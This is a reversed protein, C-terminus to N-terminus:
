ITKTLRFCICWLYEESKRLKCVLRVESEMANMGNPGSVTEGIVKTSDMNWRGDFFRALGLPPRASEHFEQQSSCDTSKWLKPRLEFTRFDFYDALFDFCYTVSPHFPMSSRLLHPEQRISTKRRTINEYLTRGFSKTAQRCAARREQPSKSINLKNTKYEYRQLLNKRGNFLGVEASHNARELIEKSAYLFRNNEVLRPFSKSFNSRQYISSNHFNMLNSWEIERQYKQINESVPTDM